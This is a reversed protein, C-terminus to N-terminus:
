LWPVRLGPHTPSCPLPACATMIRGDTARLLTRPVADLRAAAPAARYVLANHVGQDFGRALQAWVQRPTLWKSGFAQAVSRELASANPKFRSELQMAMAEVYTAMAAAGGLSFGSCSIPERGLRAATAPGFLGSIWMRNVKHTGLTHRRGRVEEHFVLGDAAAVM